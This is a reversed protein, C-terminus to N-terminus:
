RTRPKAVMFAKALAEKISTDVNARGDGINREIAARAGAADGALIREVVKMHQRCTTAQRDPQGFDIMRLVFLRENIARLQDLLMSNGAAAALTEHFTTDLQALEEGRREPGALIKAWARHLAAVEPRARGDRALQEVVHVELAKRLDYLEGIERLDLQRVAYGRNALKAVFGNTVLARLAERVPSRSVGFEACLAEETLRHEPPYEWAVIREKLTAVISATLGSLRQAPGRRLAARPRPVRPPTRTM